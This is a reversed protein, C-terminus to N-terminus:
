HHSPSPFPLVRCCSTTIDTLAQTGTHHENYHYLRSNFSFRLCRSICFDLATQQQLHPSQALLVASLYLHVLQMRCTRRILVVWSNGLDLPYAVAFSSQLSLGPQLQEPATSHQGAM